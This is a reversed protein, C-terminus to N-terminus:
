RSPTPFVQWVLLALVVLVLLWFVVTWIADAVADLAPHLSTIDVFALLGAAIICVSLVLWTARRAM